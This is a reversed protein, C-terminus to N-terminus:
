SKMFDWRGKANGGYRWGLKFTRSPPPPGSGYEMTWASIELNDKGWAGATGIEVQWPVGWNRERERERVKFVVHDRLERSIEHSSLLFDVFGQVVFSTPSEGAHARAMIVVAPIRPPAGSSSSSSTAAATKKRKRKKKEEEEEEDDDDGNVNDDHGNIQGNNDSKNDSQADVPKEEKEEREEEEDNQNM